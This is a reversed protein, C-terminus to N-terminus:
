NGSASTRTLKGISGSPDEDLIGCDFGPQDAALLYLLYFRSADPFAGIWKLTSRGGLRLLLPLM